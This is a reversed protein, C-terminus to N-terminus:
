QPQSKSFLTVKETNFTQFCLRIENEGERFLLVLSFVIFVDSATDEISVLSSEQLVNYILTM